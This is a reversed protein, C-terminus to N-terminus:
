YEFDSDEAPLRQYGSTDNGKLRDLIGTPLRTAKQQAKETRQSDDLQKLARLILLADQETYTRELGKKDSTWAKGSDDSGGANVRRHLGPAGPPGSELGGHAGGPPAYQVATQTAYPFFYEVPRAAASRQRTFILYVVALVGIVLLITTFGGFPNTLFGTVANVVSSVAGGVAGIAVGIGKGAVGLGQMFTDLGLLYSPTNDNVKASLTRIHQKQSNYERMIEDLSFVNSARLEGKSYLELVKFDTNELPEIDLGILTDVLQIHELSTVNRFRYDRYEYGVTGVVFIKRSNTDCNETRFTGLMIENNEGLQGSELKTSNVFQFVVLPRSYCNVVKGDQFIRMDKLVKVSKQDVQVCESMAIVDGALKATVPREYVASLINTPNIKSLEKLMEATRKQDRCWADMINRLAENIYDRLVDYTFQLQAYTIDTVVDDINNLSRKRRAAPAAASTANELSASTVPPSATAVSINNLAAFEELNKLSKPKLAQWLVILGGTTRYMELKGEKVHTENYEEEFVRDVEAVFEEYVCSFTNYDRGPTTANYDVQSKSAVFTATLSKSVFHYSTNTDTRIARSVTQWKKWECTVNKKPLIEWGITMDDRELFAMLPVVKKPAALEGFYTKMTYNKRIWFNRTDEEFPESNEGNYFPSIEVVEGSSLVFFEYPTNSRAKTVVVVCNMNCSETYRWTWAGKHYRSKTTVYRKSNKSRYDDEVLVMTYNRYSDEHYAVYVEGNLIRSAASYCRNNRNVEDLEWIPFAMKTVSTGLFYNTTTDAYSRQFIADKHYTIVEFTYAVINEKYVVMIGEQVPTKPTHNICDISKGFRVLDTSVAMCVRYPYKDIDVSVMDETENVFPVITTGTIKSAQTPTAEKKGTAAGSTATETEASATESSTDTKAKPTTGPTSAAAIVESTCALLCWITVALATSMAYWSSSRCGRENRRSM